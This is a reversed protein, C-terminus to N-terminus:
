EFLRIVFPAKGRTNTMLNPVVEVEIKITDPVKLRANAMIHAADQSTYGPMAAVKIVLNEPDTQVLQLQFVHQLERPIQNLGIIRMGDRTVLYEGERGLIGSFPRLGLSIENLEQAGCGVPLQVLDGTQYRPLPMALNWYNTAVVAATTMDGDQPHLEARGYAPHFFFEDPRTSYALCLREAQGYYNVVQAHFCNSLAAHLSGPLMESSALILPIRLDIEAKQVLNLLNLVASPYVWLVEPAFDRLATAFWPLSQPTLHASSFTLRKGGHSIKGFPPTLDSQAKVKDGRLVAVRSNRMDAGFPILLADIFAQEAVICELSRWLKLPTGTTGGTSAPLKILTNKCVFDEPKTRVTVKELIPWDEIRDSRGQGYRSSQAARLSQATLQDRITALERPNSGASKSQALARAVRRRWVPNYRVARDMVGEGKAYASLSLLMARSM